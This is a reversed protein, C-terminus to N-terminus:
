ITSCRPQASLYLFYKPILNQNRHFLNQCHPDIVHQMDTMDEQELMNFFHKGVLGAFEDNRHLIAVKNELVFRVRM